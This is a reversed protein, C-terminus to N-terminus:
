KKRSPWKVLHDELEELSSLEHEQKTIRGKVSIGAEIVSTKSGSILPHWKYLPKGDRILAYGCTPPLWTIERVLTPTLQICDEVKKARNDYDGCQCIECNLLSCAVSTFYIKGTDEDELKMLCCRGCGDCLSEWEQSNLEELTKTEWFRM